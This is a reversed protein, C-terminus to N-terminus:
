KVFRSFWGLIFPLVSIVTILRVLHLLAVKPTEAGYADSIITMDTLGGPASSFLATMLDLGTLKSIVFGLFVSYVMLGVMLILAPAILNKLGSMTAATFNLGVIGGMVVQAVLKLNSPIEAKGLCINFIAVSFMAGIFAGAPIKLKIGVYGGIFAVALTYVIKELVSGGKHKTRFMKYQIRISRFMKWLECIM